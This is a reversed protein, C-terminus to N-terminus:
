AAQELHGKKPLLTPSSSGCLNRGVRVMRHNQSETIRHYQLETLLNINSLFTSAENTISSANKTSITIPVPVRSYVSCIPCYHHYGVGIYLMHM